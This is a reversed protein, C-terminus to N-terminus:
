MKMIGDVYTAQVRILARVSGALVPQADNKPRHFRCFVHNIAAQFSPIPPIPIFAVVAIPTVIIAM